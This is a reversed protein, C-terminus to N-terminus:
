SGIPREVVAKASVLQCQRCEARMLDDPHRLGQDASLRWTCRSATCRWHCAVCSRRAADTGAWLTIVSTWAPRATRCTASWSGKRRNDGHRNCGTSKSASEQRWTAATPHKHGQHAVTYGARWRWIQRLHLSNASQLWIAPSVMKSPQPCVQPRGEVAM